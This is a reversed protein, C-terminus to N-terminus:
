LYTAVSYKPEQNTMCDCSQRKKRPEKGPRTYNKQKRSENDEADKSDIDTVMAQQCMATERTGRPDLSREYDEARARQFKPRRKPGRDMTPVMMMGVILIIGMTRECSEEPRM